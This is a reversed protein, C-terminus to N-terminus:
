PRPRMGCLHSALAQRLTLSLLGLEPTMPAKRWSGGGLLQRRIQGSLELQIGKGRIGRNCLNTHHVGGLSPKPAEGAPFGNRKLNIMITRKLAEERGGVYIVPKPARCGHLTIITHSVRAMAM